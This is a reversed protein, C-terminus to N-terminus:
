LPHPITFLPKTDLFYTIGTTKDLFHEVINYANKCDDIVADLSDGRPLGRPMRAKGGGGRVGGV